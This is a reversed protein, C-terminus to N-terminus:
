CAARGNGSRGPGLQGARLISFGTARIADIAYGDFNRAFIAGTADGFTRDCSRDIYDCAQSWGCAQRRGRAHERGIAGCASHRLRIAAKVAQQCPASLSAHNRKLCQFAETGGRPVGRCKAMFDSRCNSKVAAVQEQSPAAGGGSRCWVSRGGPRAHLGFDDTCFNFVRM